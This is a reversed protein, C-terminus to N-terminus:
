HRPRRQTRIWEKQRRRLFFAAYLPLKWALYAPALLLASIPVRGRGFRAWALVTAVAVLVLAALTMKLAITSGGALVAVAAALGVAGLLAILLALPPVFLDAALAALGPRRQRLAERVLRPGESLLTALQGHEWRRRQAAAARNTAPLDSEVLVDLAFLPPFGAMSLELGLALDEVLNGHQQPAQRIQDWTFAMGSGTLHCPLGLRRMALPRVLNRILCALASVNALQGSGAPANLLYLAQVPRRHALAARGLRDIGDDSVRCDADVLVLVDPPDPELRDLAFSIAYGKGRRDPDTRIWVEAGAHSAEAATDDSCNDAVVILREGRTLQNRLHRVTDGVGEQEDHAPILVAVSPRKASLRLADITGPCVAILCEVCYIASPVLLSVAVAILVIDVVTM